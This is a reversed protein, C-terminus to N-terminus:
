QFVFGEFSQVDRRNGCTPPNGGRCCLERHTEGGTAVGADCCGVHLCSRSSPSLAFCVPSVRVLIVVICRAQAACCTGACNARPRCCSSLCFHPSLRVRQRGERGVVAEGDEQRRHHQGTSVDGGEGGDGPAHTGRREGGRGEERVCRM